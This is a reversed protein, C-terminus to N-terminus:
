PKLSLYLTHNERKLLLLVPTQPALDETLRQFDEINRVSSRNIELIIDGRRLGAREATSDSQVQRIVVGKNHPLHGPSLPEVIIGALAHEKQQQRGLNRTATLDKPLERIVVSLEHQHSMEIADFNCVDVCMGCLICRGFNIEFNEIIKRRKSKGEAQLPNDMMQASMCQTPCVRVCVMCGTCYPEGVKEDWTLVPFGMYRIALPLHKKPYEATIVPKFFARFTVLMGKLSSLM